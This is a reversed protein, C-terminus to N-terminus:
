NYCKEAFIISHMFTLIQFKNNQKMIKKKQLCVSMVEEVGEGWESILSERMAGAM